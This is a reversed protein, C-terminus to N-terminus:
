GPPRSGALLADIQEATPERHYFLAYFRRTEERLDEPFLEPYLVAGLWRLGLLRNAAPPSDIWTFPLGPSLYVRRDRVAKVGQWLPDTWVSEYFGRDITVIADPQWALVQEMSVNVLGGNGLTEAAVNRVGAVDLAEVNISGRIGTQLGRPGRAMYVKLRRDEPVGDFRRRVEALTTEAYRALEEGREAAGMLAGLTRFTRPSDALHGEILLTPVRTQEQVRDALSVFTPATSGVDVVVDPKAAVVTELNVTNGRGTLRGLEPLDAYRDPLFPREPPSIARTWGLLKEPALMYVVVSAPPGAPFVREVRDPVTVRRGSSDTVVREAAAPGALLALLLGASVGAM